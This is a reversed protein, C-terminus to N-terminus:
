KGLKFEVRGDKIKRKDLELMAEGSEGLAVPQSIADAVITPPENPMTDFHKFRVVVKLTQAERAVDEGQVEVGTIQTTQAVCSFDMALDSGDKLKVKVVASKKAEEVLRNQRAEPTGEDPLPSNTAPKNVPLNNAPANGQPPVNNASNPVYPHSCARALSVLLAVIILLGIFSGLACGCACGKSVPAQENIIAAETQAVPPVPVTQVKTAGCNPCKVSLDRGKPFWTHGCARCRNQPRKTSQGM